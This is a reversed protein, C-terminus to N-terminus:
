VWACVEFVFLATIYKESSPGLGYAIVDTFSRLRRDKEIIRLMIKLSPQILPADM